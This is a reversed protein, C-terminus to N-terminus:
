GRYEDGCDGISSLLDQHGDVAEDLVEWDAEDLSFDFVRANDTRHESLGLRCGVIVGAVRERELIARTAVNAMGVEHRAAVDALGRLLRQFLDWGGWADIMRKYKTKSNTELDAPTPEDSGLYQESILGGCLTGYTLFRIDHERCVALQEREPRRDVLSYQVQNSVVRIGAEAIRALHVSDFNTLALHGIRGEHQLDAMHSLADLYRPDDYDWWHFQLVDLCEVDMRGLSVEVAAEVVERTMEGASPCWKTMAQIGALAQEGRRQGLRRRFEGYIEEAPGYHDAMDLTTYGADLYDFLSEIATERDIPGHGGALQWLGVPLSCITFDDGLERRSSIPLPM